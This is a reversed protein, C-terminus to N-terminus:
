STARGTDERTGLVLFASMVIGASAAGVLTTQLGLVDVLAGLGIAGLAAGGIGVVTWLSMVRGRFGDELSLQVTSQYGIGVMAGTFGMGCVAFLAIPWFTVLGLLAVLAFGAFAAVTSVPPLEGAGPTNRYAMIVSAVLAGAGAAALIQGLGEAGRQYAGDAIAPLVELTGRVIFSFLGNLIMAHLIVTRGVVYRAGAALQGLFTGGKQISADRPRLRVVGLAVLLPLFCLINVLLAWPVGLASILVGGVAPGMLRAFNFNLRYWPSLM